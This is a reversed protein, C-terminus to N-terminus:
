AARGDACRALLSSKERVYPTELALGIQFIADCLVACSENLAIRLFRNDGGFEGGHCVLVGHKRLLEKVEIGSSFRAPVKTWIFMGSRNNNQTDVEFGLHQLGEVMVRRRSQLEARFEAVEPMESWATMAVRQMAFPVGNLAAYRKVLRKIWQPDGVVAGVRWGCARFPKSLSIIEVVSDDITLMSVPAEGEHLDAYVFDSIIRVGLEKAITAVNRLEDIDFVRGSPNQPSNCIFVGGKLPAFLSRLLDQTLRGEPLAIPAPTMDADVIVPHFANYAPAFYGVPANKRDIACLLFYIAPRAGQTIAIQSTTVVLGHHKSYYGAVALRTVPLGAPDTYHSAAAFQFAEALAEQLRQPPRGAPDGVAFDFVKKM